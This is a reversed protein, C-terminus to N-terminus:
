KIDIKDTYKETTGMSMLKKNLAVNYSDLAMHIQHILNNNGVNYAVNLKTMLESIKEQIDDLDMEAIEDTNLFPHEM